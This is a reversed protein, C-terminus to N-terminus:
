FYTMVVKVSTGSDDMNFDFDSFKPKSLGKLKFNSFGVGETPYVRLRYTMNGSNDEDDLVTVAYTGSTLSTTITKNGSAIDKKSITIKKFAEEKDFQDQNQFIGIRLTGTNNKIGSIDITLNQATGSMGLFVTFLLLLLKIRM